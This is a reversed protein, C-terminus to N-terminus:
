TSKKGNIFDNFSPQGSGNMFIPHNNILDVLRKKNVDTEAIKQIFDELSKNLWKGKSEFKINDFKVLKEKIEDYNSAWYLFQISTLKPAFLYYKFTRKGLQNLLSSLRPLFYYNLYKNFESINSLTDEPFSTNEERNIQERIKTSQYIPFPFIDIILVGNDAMKKLHALKKKLHWDENYPDVFHKFPEQFYPTKCSQDTAYFYKRNEENPNTKNPYYPPAEGILIHIVGNEPINKLYSKFCDNRKNFEEQVSNIPTNHVWGNELCFNYAETLAKEEKTMEEKKM